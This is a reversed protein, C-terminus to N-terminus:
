PRKKILEIIGSIDEGARAKDGDSVRQQFLDLLPTLLESRIGQERGARLIHGLSVAQMGINAEVELTYDAADIQRAYGDLFSAAAQLFPRYSVMLESASIGESGALAVAHFFGSFLGYMGSLLSMDQLSAMGADAGVFRAEGLLEVVGRYRDFAEEIGSYFVVAHPQGIMSPTAMIGGDLYEVGGGQAWEAMQRADLPTGTTLNILTKGALDRAGPEELLESVVAYDLVCIVVLSSAAVAEEITRAQKAGNEVLNRAKGSDRNWVTVAHGGHLFRQALAAGMAGLGIVSVPVCEVDSGSGSFTHSSSSCLSSISM